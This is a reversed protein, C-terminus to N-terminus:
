VHGIHLAGINGSLLIAEGTASWSLCFSDLTLQALAPRPNGITGNKLNLFRSIRLAKNQINFVLTNTHFRFYPRSLYLCSMKLGCALNCLYDM